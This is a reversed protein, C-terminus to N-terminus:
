LMTRANCRQTASIATAFRITEHSVNGKTAFCCCQVHMVSKKQMNRQLRQVVVFHFNRNVRKQQPRSCLVVTKKKREQVKICDKLIWSWLFKGVNSSNFTSYASLHPTRLRQRRRRRQKPQTCVSAVVGLLTAGAIKPNAAHTNAATHLRICCSEVINPGATCRPFSVVWLDKYIMRLSRSHGWCHQFLQAFPDLM